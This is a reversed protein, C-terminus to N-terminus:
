ALCRDGVEPMQMNGNMRRARQGERRNRGVNGQWNGILGM